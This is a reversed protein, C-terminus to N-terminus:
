QRLNQFSRRDAYEAANKTVTEGEEEENVFTEVEVVGTGVRLKTKKRIDGHKLIHM